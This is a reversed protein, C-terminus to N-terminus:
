CFEFHQKELVAENASTFIQILFEFLTCFFIM